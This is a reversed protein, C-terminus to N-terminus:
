PVHRSHRIADLAQQPDLYARSRRVLVGEFEYVIAIPGDLDIGSSEGLARVRGIAVVTEGLDRMEEVDITVDWVSHWDDWYRRLGDRGRYVREPDEVRRAIESIWEVEPHGTALWADLDGDHWAALNRRVVDVHEQSM